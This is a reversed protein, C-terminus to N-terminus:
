TGKKINNDILRKMIKYNDFYNHAEEWNYYKALSSYVIMMKDDEKVLEYIFTREKFAKHLEDWLDKKIYKNKIFHKEFKSDGIYERIDQVTTVCKYDTNM